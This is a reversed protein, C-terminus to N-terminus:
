HGMNMNACGWSLMQPPDGTLILGQAAIGAKCWQRQLQNGPVSRFFVTTPGVHLTPVWKTISIDPYIIVVESRAWQSDHHILSIM